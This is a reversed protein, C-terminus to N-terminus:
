LLLWALVVNAALLLPFVAAIMARGRSVELASRLGTAVLMVYWPVGVLPLIMAPWVATAFAVVQVLSDFDARREGSARLVVWMVAAYLHMWLAAGILYAAGGVIISWWWSMGPLPRWWSLRYLADVGAIVALWFAGAVGAAWVGFTVASGRDLLHARRFFDAGETSLQTLSSVFAAAFRSRGLHDWPTGYRLAEGTVGERIPRVMMDAADLVEHCQVCRFKRPFPLGFSDAGLYAQGCGKCVFQVAGSPFAYDTTQFAAGCEPCRNERLGFLLYGCRTCNM